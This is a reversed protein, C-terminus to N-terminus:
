TPQQGPLEVSSNNSNKGLSRWLWQYKYLLSLECAISLVAFFRNGWRAKSFASAFVQSGKDEELEMTSRTKASADNMHIPELAHPDTVCPWKKVLDLSEQKLEFSRCLALLFKGVWSFQQMFLFTPLLAKLLQELAVGRSLFMDRLKKEVRKTASYKSFSKNEDDWLRHQIWQQIQWTLQSLAM